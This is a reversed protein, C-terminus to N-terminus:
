VTKAADCSSGGLASLPQGFVMETDQSRPSNWTSMHDTAIKGDKGVVDDVMIVQVNPDFFLPYSCSFLPTIRARLTFEPFPRKASPKACKFRKSWGLATQM